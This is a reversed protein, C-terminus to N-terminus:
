IYMFRKEADFRVRCVRSWLRHLLKYLSAITLFVRRGEVRPTLSHLIGEVRLSLYSSLTEKLAPFHSGRGRGWMM